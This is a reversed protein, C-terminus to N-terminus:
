EVADLITNIRVRLAAENEIRDFRTTKKFQEMVALGEESREMAVLQRCLTEVIEAPLGKRFAVVHRPVVQSEALVKFEGAQAGRFEEFDLNSLAGAACRGTLVWVVINEEDLTFITGVEDAAVPEQPTSKQSLKLGAERLLAAPLFYGSTSWSDELAVMRGKLQELSSIGSDNRAVLVSHYNAVGGKWRRLLIDLEVRRAIHYLILPSDIVVDLSGERLMEIAHPVSVACAPEVRIRQERLQASLYDCLPHYLRLTDLPNYGLTGLEIVVEAPPTTEPVVSSDGCSLPGLALLACSLLGCFLRM